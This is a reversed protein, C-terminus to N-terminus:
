GRFASRFNQIQEDVSDASARKQKKAAPPGCPDWTATGKGHGKGAGHNRGKGKNGRNKRGFAGFQQRGEPM